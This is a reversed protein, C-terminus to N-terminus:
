DTVEFDMTLPKMEPWEPFSLTVKANGNVAERPVRVPAFSASYSNSTQNIRVLRDTVEMPLGVAESRFEFRWNLPGHQKAAYNWMVAAFTGTGLGPTGFMVRLAFDEDEGRNPNRSIVRKAGDRSLIMAGGFHVIPAEKAAASFELGARKSSVTSQPQKDPGHLYLRWHDNPNYSKSMQVGEYVKGDLTKIKGIDFHQVTGRRVVKVADSLDGDGNKDVFLADGDLVLWVRTEATPGLVMLCYRPAQSYEPENIVSRDIKTLDVAEQDAASVPLAVCVACWMWFVCPWKM